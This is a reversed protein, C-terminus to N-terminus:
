LRVNMIEVSIERDGFKNIMWTLFKVRFETRKDGKGRLPRLHGPLNHVMSSLNSTNGTNKFYEPAIERLAIFLSPEYVRYSNVWSVGPHRVGALQIIAHCIFQIGEAEVLDRITSLNVKYQM